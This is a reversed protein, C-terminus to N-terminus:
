PVQRSPPCFLHSMSQTKTSTYPFDAVLQVVRSWNMSLTKENKLRKIPQCSEMQFQQLGNKKMATYSDAGTNRAVQKLDQLRPKGMAKKGQIAGKLINVVFENQRIIHQIWSHRWMKLLLREDKARQYVEGNTIRDTWKIKLM